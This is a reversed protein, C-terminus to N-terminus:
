CYLVCRIFFVMLNQKHFDLQECRARYAVAISVPFMLICVYLVIKISFFFGLFKITYEFVPSCLLLVPVLVSSWLGRRRWCTNSMFTGWFIGNWRWIWKWIPPLLNLLLKCSTDWGVVDKLGLYFNTYNLCQGVKFINYWMNFTKM